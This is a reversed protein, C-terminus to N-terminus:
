KRRGEREELEDDDVCAAWVAYFPLCVSIVLLMPVLVFVSILAIALERLIWKM